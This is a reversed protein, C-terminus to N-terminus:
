SRPSQYIRFLLLRKTKLNFDVKLAVIVQALPLLGYSNRFLLIGNIIVTWISSFFVMDTYVTCM